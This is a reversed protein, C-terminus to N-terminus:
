KESKVEKPKVGQLKQCEEMLTEKQKLIQAKEKQWEAFIAEVDPRRQGLLIKKEKKLDNIQVNMLKISKEYQKFTQKSKKTSGEFEYYKDQYSKLMEILQKEEEFKKDTSQKYVDIQKMIEENQQNIKEKMDTEMSGGKETKEDLEKTMMDEKENIEKRLSDLQTQLKENEAELDHEKFADHDEVVKKKISSLHDKFNDIIQERKAKEQEIISLHRDNLDKHQTNYQRTFQEYKKVIDNHHQLKIMLDKYETEKIEVDTKKKVMTEQSTGLEKLIVENFFTNIQSVREVPDVNAMITEMRAKLDLVTKDESLASASQPTPAKGEFEAMRSELLQKMQDNTM